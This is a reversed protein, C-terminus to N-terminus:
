VFGERNTVGAKLALRESEHPSENATAASYYQDTVINYGYPFDAVPADDKITTLAM